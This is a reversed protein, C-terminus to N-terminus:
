NDVGNESRAACLHSHGRMDEVRCLLLTTGDNLRAAGANFVSNAPYPWDKATLIPNVEYRRCLDVKGPITIMTIGKRKGM